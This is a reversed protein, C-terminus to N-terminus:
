RRCHMKEETYIKWMAWRVKEGGRLGRNLRADLREQMRAKLELSATDITRQVQSDTARLGPNASDHSDMDM